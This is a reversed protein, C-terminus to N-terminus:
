EVVEMDSISAMGVQHGRYYLAVTEDPAMEKYDDFRVNVAGDVSILLLYDGRHYINYGRPVFSNVIKDRIKLPDLLNMGKINKDFLTYKM